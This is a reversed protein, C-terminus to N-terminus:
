RGNGSRALAAEPVAASVETSGHPNQEASKAVEEAPNFGSGAFLRAEAARRRVLGPIVRGGAHVWLGFQAAAEAMEGANVYRLLSSHLFNGGGANFCFDVLAEFQGQTLKVRVARRVCAIAAALDERLLAEAEAETMRQGAHVDPGTHGYGITWVGASDQYAELRLGEFSRTLALGASSYEFENM